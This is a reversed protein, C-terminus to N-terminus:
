ESLGGQQQEQHEALSERKDDDGLPPLGANSRLPECISPERGVLDECEETFKTEDVDLVLDRYWNKWYGSKWRKSAATLADLDRLHEDRLQRVLGDFDADARDGQRFDGLYVFFM